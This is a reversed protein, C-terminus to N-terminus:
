KIRKYVIKKGNEIDYRRLILKRKNQRHISYSREKVRDLKVKLVGNEITYSSTDKIYLLNPGKSQRVEYTFCQGNATFTVTKNGTEWKGLVSPNYEKYGIAALVIAIFSVKIM